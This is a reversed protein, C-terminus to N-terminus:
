CLTHSSGFLFTFRFMSFYTLPSLSQCFTRTSSKFDLSNPVDFTIYDRDGVSDVGVDCGSVCGDNLLEGVNVDADVADDVGVPDHCSICAWDPASVEAEVSYICSNPGNNCDHNM